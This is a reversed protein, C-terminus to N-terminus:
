ISPFALRLGGRFEGGCIGLAELLFIHDAAPARKTERLIAGPYQKGDRRGAGFPSLGRGAFRGLAEDEFAHALHLATSVMAGNWGSFLTRDVRPAAREAVAANAPVALEFGAWGCDVPDALWNQAYTLADRARDAYRQIDLVHAAVLAGKDVSSATISVRLPYRNTVVSFNGSTGLVWGRAHFRRGVAAIAEAGEAQTMQADPM